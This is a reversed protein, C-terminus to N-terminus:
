GQDTASVQADAYRELLLTLKMLARPLHFASKVWTGKDDVRPTGDRDLYTYWEGYERDAFVRQWYAHQDLFAQWLEGDERTLAALALAYLAEGHVWWIKTDWTEGFSSTPEEAPPANGAPSTFALLGGQERDLGNDYAWRTVQVARDIARPDNRHLAEELCFWMSELAHGPNITQGKPTDLTHGEADLVEFLVQHEDKAFGWLVRCMAEEALVDIRKDGLVARVSPTLGLLIMPVGHYRLSPDLDFHHHETFGPQHLHRDWAEFTTRILPLDEDSGSALAYECLGSLAFADTFWSRADERVTGDRNLRYHFRGEGAHAHHVLLDRGRRALALWDDRREFQNCLAAFMWTQRGQCWVYKDMGTPNGQRDFQHLHGPHEPDGTRQTWFPLIDGLLYHRYFSALERVQTRDITSEISM